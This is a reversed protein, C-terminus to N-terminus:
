AGRRWRAAAAKSAHMSSATVPKDDVSPFAVQGLLRAMALRSQRVEAVAPHLVPQRKSGTVMLGDTRIQRELETIRDALRCAETVLPVENVDLEYEATLRKWLSRGSPALGSPTRPPTM